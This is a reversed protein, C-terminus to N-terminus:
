IIGEESGTRNFTDSSNRTLHLKFLPVIKKNDILKSLLERVSIGKIPHIFDPDIEALPELVFRRRHLEPHPVKLPKMKIIEDDFFLLDLDIVRPAWKEAPRVRGMKLELDLIMQLFNVVNLRTKVQIVGNVYWGQPGSGKLTLPETEYFSSARLVQCAPHEHIAQIADTCNKIKDGVNSGIGVYAIHSLQDM